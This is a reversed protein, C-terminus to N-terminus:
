LKEYVENPVEFVYIKCRGQHGTFPDICDTEIIRKLYLEDDNGIYVLFNDLHKGDQKILMASDNGKISNRIEQKLYMRGLELKM